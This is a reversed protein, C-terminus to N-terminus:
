AILERLSHCAKVRLGRSCQILLQKMGTNNRIYLRRGDWILMRGFRLCTHSEPLGKDFMADELDRLRANLDETAARLDRAVQLLRKGTGPTM